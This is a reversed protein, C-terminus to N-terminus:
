YKDAFPVERYASFETTYSSGQCRKFGNQGIRTVMWQNIRSNKQLNLHCMKEHLVKEDVGHESSFLPAIILELTIKWIFHLCHSYNACSMTCGVPAYIGNQKRNRTTSSPMSNRAQLFGQCVRHIMLFPNLRSSSWLFLYIALSMIFCQLMWIHCM